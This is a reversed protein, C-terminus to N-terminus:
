AKRGSGSQHRGRAARRGRWAQERELRLAPWLSVSRQAPLAGRREDCGVARAVRAAPQVPAAQLAEHVAREARTRRQQVRGVRVRRPVVAQAGRVRARQVRV